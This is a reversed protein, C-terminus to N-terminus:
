TEPSTGDICTLRRNLLAIHIRLLSELEGLERGAGAVKSAMDKRGVLNRLRTGYRRQEDILLLYGLQGLLYTVVPEGPRIARHFGFEAQIECLESRFDDPPDVGALLSVLTFVAKPNRVNSM